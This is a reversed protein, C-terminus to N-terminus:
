TRASIGFWCASEPLDKTVADAVEVVVVEIRLLDVVVVQLDMRRLHGVIITPLLLDEIIPIQLLFAAGETTFIAGPHRHHLIDIVTFITEIAIEAVVKVLIIGRLGVALVIMVVGHVGVAVEREGPRLALALDVTPARTNVVAAELLAVKKVTRQLLLTM